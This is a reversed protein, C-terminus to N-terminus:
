RARQLAADTRGRQRAANCFRQEAIREFRNEAAAREYTRSTYVDRARRLPPANATYAHESNRAPTGCRPTPQVTGTHPM